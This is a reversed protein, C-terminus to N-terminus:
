KAFSSFYRTRVRKLCKSIYKRKFTMEYHLINSIYDTYLLLFGLALLVQGMAVVRRLFFRGVMLQQNCLFTVM